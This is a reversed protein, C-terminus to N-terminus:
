ISFCHKLVALGPERFEVVIGGGRYSAHLLAKHMWELVTGDELRKSGLPKAPDLHLEVLTM